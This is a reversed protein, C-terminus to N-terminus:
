VVSKRDTARRSTRASGAAASGHSPAPSTYPTRRSRRSSASRRASCSSGSRASGQGSSSRASTTSAATAPHARSVTTATSARQRSAGARSGAVPEFAAGRGVYREYVKQLLTADPTGPTPLQDEPRRLLPRQVDRRVRTLAADGNKLWTRWSQPALKAAAQTTASAARRADIWAWDFADQEPALSLVLFEFIYNSFSDGNRDVQVVLEARRVIALGQFQPYGKDAGGVRTRRFLVLPVARRREEEHPSCHLALQDLLLRNGRRRAPDTLPSKNDGFYRVYGRDPAFVDQWPTQLTGVKHPSSAIVLAPVRRGDVAAVAALQNIGSNFPIVKSTAGSGTVAYVNRRGDIVSPTPSKTRPDRLIEGVRIRRDDPPVGTM